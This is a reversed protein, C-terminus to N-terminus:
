TDDAGFRESMAKEAERLLKRWHKEHHKMAASGIRMHCYDIAKQLEDRTGSKVARDHEKLQKFRTMVSELVYRGLHGRRGTM